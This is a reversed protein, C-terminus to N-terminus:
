RVKMWMLRVTKFRRQLMEKSFDATKAVEEGSVQKIKTRAKSTTKLIALRKKPSQTPSTVINVTDGNQLVYKIPVNKENVKASMCKSGLKTHISFAFTSYPPVRLHKILEGTPTFM